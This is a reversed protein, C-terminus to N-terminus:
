WYSGVDLDAIVVACEDYTDSKALLTSNSGYFGGDSTPNPGGGVNMDFAPDQETGRGPHTQYLALGTAIRTSPRCTTVAVSKPTNFVSLLYFVDGSQANGLEDPAGVNSGVQIDGCTVHQYLCHSQNEWVPAQALLYDGNGFGSGGNNCLTPVPSPALSPASTSPMPSPVATGEGFMDIFAFPKFADPSDGYVSVCQAYLRTCYFAFQRDSSTVGFANETEIMLVLGVDEVAFVPEGSVAYVGNGESDEAQVFVGDPTVTAGSTAPTSETGPVLGVTFHMGQNLPSGIEYYVKLQTTALESATDRVETSLMCPIQANFTALFRYKKAVVASLYSIDVGDTDGDLDPDMNSLQLASLDGASVAGGLYQQMYLVDGVDCVCDGNTDGLLTGCEALRRREAAVVRRSELWRATEFPSSAASSSARLGGAGSVWTANDWYSFSTSSSSSSPDPSSGLLSQELWSSSNSDNHSNNGNHLHRLLTSNLFREVTNLLRRRPSAPRPLFQRRLEDGMSSNRGYVEADGYVEEDAVVESAGGYLHENGYREWYIRHTEEDGEEDEDLHYDVGQQEGYRGLLVGSLAGSDSSYALTQSTAKATTATLSRRRARGNNLVLDAFSTQEPATLFLSYPANSVMVGPRYSSPTDEEEDEEEVDVDEEEGWMSYEEDGVGGADANAISSLRRRRRRRASIVLNDSGAFAVLDTVVSSSDQLKVIRASFYNTGAAVIQFKITAVLLSGRSNCSSSDANGCSGVLLVEDVPDNTTCTWGHGWGSGQVCDSDGAVQVLTFDFTVVLQFATLHSSASAQVRVPVSLISGVSSTGFTAGSTFGMDVDYAEPVLNTFVEQSASLGEGCVDSATVTTSTYHNAELAVYGTLSTVSLVSPASSAFTMLDAPVLWSSSTQGAQSVKIATGDALTVTVDLLDTTGVGGSLTSSSGINNGMTMGTLSTTEDLTAVDLSAFKGFYEGTIVATGPSSVVTLVRSSSGSIAAVGTNSSSWSMYAGLSSQSTGDSLVGGGFFQTRQYIGSCAVQRLELQNVVYSAVAPYPRTYVSVKALEVLKVSATTNLGHSPVNVFVSAWESSAATLNHSELVKIRNTSYLTILNESNGDQVVSYFARADTSYDQTTGDEFNLITTIVVGTSVHFPAAAAGNGAVAIKTSSVTVTVSIASPMEVVVTGKGTAVLGGCVFWYAQIYGGCISSAGVPVVVGTSGASSGGSADASTSIALSEPALSKLRVLSTVDEVFGDSFHAYVAVDGDDGEAVLEHYLQLQPVASGELPNFGTSLTTWAAETWTVLRLKSVEIAKDSVRVRVEGGPPSLALGANAYSAYTGGSLVLRVFSTGNSLGRVATTAHGQTEFALVSPDSVEFGVLHTVDVEQSSALRRSGTTFRARASVESMQYRSAGGCQALGNEGSNALYTNSFNGQGQVYSLTTDAVELMVEEPFWVRFSVV